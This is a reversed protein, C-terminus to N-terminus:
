HATLKMMDLRKLVSELVEVLKAISCSRVYVSAHKGVADECCFAISIDSQQFIEVDNIDDGVSIVALYKESSEEMYERLVSAKGRFSVYRKACGTLRGYRDLEIETGVCWEFGLEKMVRECLVSFGGTIAIFKAVGRYGHVLRVLKEIGRRWPIAYLIKRFTEYSLGRWLNLDLYVWEDYSIEKNFFLNKYHESRLKTSLVTHIFNWSSKIPTLTGDIDFM